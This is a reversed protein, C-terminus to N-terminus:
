REGAEAQDVRLVNGIRRAAEEVDEVPVMPEADLPADREPGPWLWFFWPEGDHEAVAIRQNLGRHLARGRPDDPTSAANHAYIAGDRGVAVTLGRPELLPALQAAPGEVLPALPSPNAHM